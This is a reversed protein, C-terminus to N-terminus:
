YPLISLAPFDRAQLINAITTDLLLWKLISFVINIRRRRRKNAKMVSEEHSDVSMGFYSSILSNSSTM